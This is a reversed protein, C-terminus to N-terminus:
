GWELALYREKRIWTEDVLTNWVIILLAYSLTSYKEVTALHENNVMYTLVTKFGFIMLGMVAPLMLWKTYHSLFEFYFAIKEGFYNRILNGPVDIWSSWRKNLSKPIENEFM